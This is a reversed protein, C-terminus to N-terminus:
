SEPEKFHIKPGYELLRSSESHDPNFWRFGDITEQDADAGFAFLVDVVKAMDADDLSDNQLVVCLMNTPHYHVDNAFDENLSACFTIYDICMLILDVDENMELLYISPVLDRVREPHRRALYKLDDMDWRLPGKRFPTSGMVFDHEFILDCIDVKHREFALTVLNTMAWNFDPFNVRDLLLRFSELRNHEVMAQLIEYMYFDGLIASLRQPSNEAAIIDLLDIAEM